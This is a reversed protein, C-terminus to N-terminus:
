NPFVDVITYQLNSKRLVLNLLSDLNSKLFVKFRNPPLQVIEEPLFNYSNFMLVLACSSFRFYKAFPVVLAKSHNNRQSLRRNTDAVFNIFNCPRVNLVYKHLLSMKLYFVFSFITPWCMKTLLIAYDSKFDRLFLQAIYMQCKELRHRDKSYLPYCAEVAYLLVPRLLTLYFLGLTKVNVCFKFVRSVHGGAKKVTAVKSQFHNSYDLKPDLKVGLYVFNNVYGIVADKIFLAPSFQSTGSRSFVQCQSKERNVSLSLEDFFNVIANINDQVFGYSKDAPIPCVLVLDDAYQVITSNGFLNINGIGNTYSVYLLPGLISGQVVGSQISVPDSFSSNVRVIQTRGYLFSKLMILLHPPLQFNQQLVSLLQHHPVKDFAKSIDFFVCLVESSTELFRSVLFDFYILADSTSRGPRFGYQSSHLQPEVINSLVCKLFWELVKDIIPLISIPRYDTVRVPSFSKPVPCIISTKWAIPIDCETLCRNILDTVPQILVSSCNKYLVSPFNDYGTSVNNRMTSFCKQVFTDPCQYIRDDSLLSVVNPQLQNCWVSSFFNSFCDSVDKPNTLVVGASSMVSTIANANPKCSSKVRSWFNRMNGCPIFETQFFVCKAKVIAKKCLKRLRSFQNYDSINNSLKWKRHSAAKKRIIKKLDDTIWKPWRQKQPSSMKPVVQECITNLTNSFQEWASHISNADSISRCLNAAAIGNSILEFDAKRWNLTPLQQKCNSNNPLDISVSVMLHFKELPPLVSCRYVVSKPCYFHDILRTKHTCVDVCQVFDFTDCIPQVIAADTFYCINVDGCIFCYDASPFLEALVNTLTAVFDGDGTKPPKYTNILLCRKNSAIFYVPLIEFDGICSCNATSSQLEEKLYIGIGGGNENRDCRHFRYKDMDFNGPTLPAIKTEQVAFVDPLYTASVLRVDDIKGRLSNINCSLFTIVMVIYIYDPFMVSM